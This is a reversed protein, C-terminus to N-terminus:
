PEVAGTRQGYEVVGQFKGERNEFGHKVLEPLLLQQFHLSHDAVIVRERQGGPAPMQGGGATLNALVHSRSRDRDLLVVFHDFPLVGFQAEVAVAQAARKM